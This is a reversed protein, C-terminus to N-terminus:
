DLPELKEIDKSGVLDRGGTALDGLDFGPKIRPGLLVYMSPPLEPRDRLWADSFKHRAEAMEAALEDADVNELKALRDILQKRAKLDGTVLLMERLGEAAREHQGLKTRMVAAWEASQAPAGPKRIASEVLLTGKEDWARRQHPDKTVLDQTYIQGALYPLKWDEPFKAMGRELIAAARLYTSQDVDHAAMSMARAGYEYTRYLSPDLAVIAEVLASVGAATSDQGGYYGTLRVVLLDAAVERYGLSLIPAADPSPAYPEEEITTSRQGTAAVRALRAAGIAILAIGLPVFPRV